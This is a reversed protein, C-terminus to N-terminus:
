MPIDEIQRPIAQIKKDLRDLGRLAEYSGLDLTDAAGEPLSDGEDIHLSGPVIKWEEETSTSVPYYGCLYNFEKQGRLCLQNVSLM